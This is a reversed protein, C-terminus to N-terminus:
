STVVEIQLVKEGTLRSKRGPIGRVLCYNIRRNNLWVASQSGTEPIEM